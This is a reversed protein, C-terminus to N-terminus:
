GKAYEKAMTGAFGFAVVQEDGVVWADHGAPCVFVDGPGLHLAELRGRPFDRREDPKEVTKVELM